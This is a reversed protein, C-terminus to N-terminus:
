SKVWGFDPEFMGNKSVCLREQRDMSKWLSKANIALELVKQVNVMAADNIELSLREIEM